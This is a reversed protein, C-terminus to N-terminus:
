QVATGERLLGAGEAVIVDGSSLGSRVIYHNADAGMSVEIVVSAAKGDVVKYAIVKDQLRVTATQPIVLVDQEKKSLVVSGTSGSRLIRDPNPFRARISSAGTQRDIVGSAAEIRGTHNYLSGDSLLLNVEGMQAIATDVSGYQRALELLQRETLSFYVFMEANDSITTLPQPLSPGVLAGARYPLAGVVGDAPSVVRTYSLSNRANSVAARAQGVAAEANSLANRSMQLEMDSIIKQAHLREKAEYTLRASSLSAEASQLSASAQALAAQYPVQDIVFLAQGRRVREGEQVLLQSLTGSVQPYIDIDQQGRITASYTTSVETDQPALTLLKYGQPAQGQMQAQQQGGSSCAVLLSSLLALSALSIMRRLMTIKIHRTYNKILHQILAFFVASAM